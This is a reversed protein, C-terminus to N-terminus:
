GHVLPLVLRAQAGRPERNELSLEGGLDLALRRVMALGLGTGGERRAVFPQLGRRLLEPPFGPGDDSVSLVIDKGESSGLIRVTGPEKGLAHVANLVLNLLAQRLRDRPLVCDLDDDVAVEIRVRDPVRYRLLAVLEEVLTRLHLRRPVEPLHRASSLQQNLLRTLREVEAIALDVREALEPERLERRLNALVMRVGALPNRLEHALSAAMEGVAALHEARALTRQQDLLAETAARVASELSEARSRHEQELEALREVLRNYNEFLPRLTAHVPGEPMPSFDGAGLKVFMGRLDQLPGLIQRRLMWAGGIGLAALAAFLMIATELEARGGERLQRLLSSQASTEDTTLKEILELGAVLDEDAPRGPSTFLRELRDLSGVTDPHLYRGESRLAAIERNLDDRRGADLPVVGSLHVLLLRQLGAGLHQIRATHEVQAGIEELQALSRWAIGGLLGVAVLCVAALVLFMAQAPFQLSHRWVAM